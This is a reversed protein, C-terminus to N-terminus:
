SLNIYKVDVYQMQVKFCILSGYIFCFMGLGMM